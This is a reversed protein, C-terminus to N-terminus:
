EIWKWFPPDRSVREVFSHRIQPKEQFLSALQKIRKQAAVEVLASTNAPVPVPAMASPGAPGQLEPRPVGSSTLKAIAPTLPPSWATSSVTDIVCLFTPSRFAVRIAGSLM